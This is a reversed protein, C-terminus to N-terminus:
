FSYNWRVAFWFKFQHQTYSLTPTRTHWPLIRHKRRSDSRLGICLWRRRFEGVSQGTRRRNAIRRIRIRLLLFESTENNLAKIWNGNRPSLVKSNILRTSPLFLRPRGCLSHLSQTQPGPNSGWGHCHLWRMIDKFMIDVGVFESWEAQTTVIPNDVYRTGAVALTVDSLDGRDAPLFFPTIRCSSM